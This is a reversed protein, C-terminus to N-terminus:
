RGEIISRARALLTDRDNLDPDDLVLSALEKLVAGLEKGPKMGIKILDDGTVALKSFVSGKGRNREAEVMADFRDKLEQLLNDDFVVPRDANKFERWLAYYPGTDRLVRRVGAPGCNFPRMHLKVLTSIADIDDNSFRLRRMSDISIEGSVKEHDYFHRRGKDDVSLTHAKGIDHYLAAFRLTKDLPTKEIVEITHDFVDATHFENQEFGITPLLEPFTYPLLGLRHLARLGDGPHSALLIKELEVRIREVSVTKLLEHHEAVAQASAGDVTRGEAYGFRVLRLIRLPDEEIREQPSCVFRLIKDTIDQQGHFPDILNLTDVSFAIANITFDRGALDEEISAGGSSRGARFTTIEVNRGDFACTITGHQLGTPIVRFGKAELRSVMEQPPLISALDIDMGEIDLVADRVTGGVIHLKADVGLAKHISLIPESQALRVLAEVGHLPARQHASSITGPKLSEVM